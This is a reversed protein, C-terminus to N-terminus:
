KYAIKVSEAYYYGRAREECKKLEVYSVANKLEEFKALADRENNFAYTFGFGSVCYYNKITGYNEM